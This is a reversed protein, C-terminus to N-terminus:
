ENQKSLSPSYDLPMLDAARESAWFGIFLTKNGPSLNGNKDLLLSNANIVIQSVQSQNAKITVPLNIHEPSNNFFKAPEKERTYVVYLKSSETSDAQISNTKLLSFDKNIPTFLTNTNVPAIGPLDEPNLKGPLHYVLYGEDETTNNFVSKFFHRISGQYAIIRNKKWQNQKSKSGALEEFYPKVEYSSVNTQTNLEFHNLLFSVTYGLGENKVKIFETSQGILADKKIDYYLIIVEPNLIKCESANDSTGIFNQTFLKLYYPRDPDYKSKVIIEPLIINDKQLSVALNISENRITVSQVLTVFGIMKIVLEYTGPHIQSLSFVGDTETAGIKKSDTLFITAGPLPAGTEDTVKGSISYAQWASPNVAYSDGKKAQLVISKEIINYTIGMNTLCVRLAEDIPANKLEATVTGLKVKTEDYIFAYGTQKEITKMVQTFPTNKENLTVQSFGATSILTLIFVLAYFTIKM